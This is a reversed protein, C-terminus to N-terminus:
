QSCDDNGPELAVRRLALYRELAGAGSCSVPLFPLLMHAADEQGAVQCLTALASCASDQVYKNHDLVAGLLARVVHGLRSRMDGSAGAGAAAPAGAPAAGNQQAAAEQAGACLLPVCCWDRAGGSGQNGKRRREGARSCTLALSELLLLGCALLVGCCRPARAAGALLWYAYRMLAWCSIIRVMPQPDQVKPVLMDAMGSLYPLLGMHCGESVAGLALIASERARWDAEQACAATAPWRWVCAHLRHRQLGCRTASLGAVGGVARLRPLHPAFSTPPAWSLYRRVQLRQEVIPMLVPLLDDGFVVALRDLGAASCRRLNWRSLAQAGGLLARVCM